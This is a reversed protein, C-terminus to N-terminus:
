VLTLSSYFAILDLSLAEAFPFWNVVMWMLLPRERGACRNMPILYLFLIRVCRLEDLCTGASEQM